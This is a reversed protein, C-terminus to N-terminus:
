IEKAGLTVNESLGLTVEYTFNAKESDELDDENFIPSNIVLSIIFDKNLKISNKKTKSRFRISQDDFLQRATANFLSKYMQFAVVLSM